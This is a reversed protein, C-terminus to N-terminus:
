RRFLGYWCGSAPYREELEFGHQELLSVVEPAVQEHIEIMVTRLEPSDLTAESGCLVILEAGDVDIKVHNPRPLGFTDVLDDLRVTLARQRYAPECATPVHQPLDSEVFNSNSGPFLRKYNFHGVGTREALPLPIPMVAEEVDNLVINDCLRSFSSYSPEFAVVTGRREMQVAAVLTYAGINAGIDYFVDGPSLEREIWAITHPEKACSRSRLDVERPSSIVLRLPVRPYDLSIIQPGDLDDDLRASLRRLIRQDDGELEPASAKKSKAM